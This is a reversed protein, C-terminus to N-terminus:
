SQFSLIDVFWKEFREGLVQLSFIKEVTNRCNQRNIQNLRKTAEILGAVSDPEVLFGTEGDKIISA